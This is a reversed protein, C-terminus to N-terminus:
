YQKFPYLIIAKVWLETLHCGAPREPPELMPQGPLSLWRSNVSKTLYDKSQASGILLSPLREGGEGREIERQRDNMSAHYTHIYLTIMTEKWQLHQLLDSQVPQYLSYSNNRITRSFRLHQTTKGLLAGEQECSDEQKRTPYSPLPGRQLGKMPVRIM